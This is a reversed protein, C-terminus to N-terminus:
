KWIPSSISAICFKSSETGFFHIVGSTALRGPRQSGAAMM